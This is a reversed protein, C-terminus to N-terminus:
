SLATASLKEVQQFALPNPPPRVQCAVCCPLVHEVVDLHEVVWCALVRVIAHQQRAGM